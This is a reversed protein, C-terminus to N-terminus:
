CTGKLQQTHLEPDENEKLGIRPASRGAAQPGGGGSRRGEGPFAARPPRHLSASGPWVVWPLISIATNRVNLQSVAGTLTSLTDWSVVAFAFGLTAYMTDCGSDSALGGHRPHLTDPGRRWRPWLTVGPVPKEDTLVNIAKRTPELSEPNQLNPKSIPIKQAHPSTAGSEPLARQM